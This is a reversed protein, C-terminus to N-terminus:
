VPFDTRSSPLIFPIEQVELQSSENPYGRILHHVGKEGLLHGYACEFEFEITASDIGENKIQYRDVVRGEYGQRKAWGLYM